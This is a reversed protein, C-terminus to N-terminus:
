CVEAIMVVFTAQEKELPNLNDILNQLTTLLYSEVERKVTPIGFVFRSSRRSDAKPAIRFAPDLSHVTDYALHPVLSFLTPLQLIQSIQEHPTKLIATKNKNNVLEALRKVENMLYNVELRRQKAVMEAYRLRNSLEVYRYSLQGELSVGTVQLIYEQVNRYDKTAGGFDDVDNTTDGSRFNNTNASGILLYNLFALSGLISLFTLCLQVIRNRRFMM